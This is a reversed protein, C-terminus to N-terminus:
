RIVRPVSGDDIDELEERLGRIFGPYLLAKYVKDPLPINWQDIRSAIPVLKPAAIEILRRLLRRSHVIKLESPHKKSLIATARGVKRQRDFFSEISEEKYHNVRAYKNYRITVGSKQLKYMLDTDEHAAYPFDTDFGGVEDFVDAPVSANSTYLESITDGHAMKHYEFQSGGHELWYMFPTVEVEDHWTTYGLVALPDSFEMHFKYHESLLDPVGICDDDLFLLYEGTAFTAGRNRASAPGQNKQKLFEVNPATDSSEKFQSVIKETEDSSGDDVVIIEFRSPEFNQEFLAEHTRKLVACRNYTPIIISIDINEDAM